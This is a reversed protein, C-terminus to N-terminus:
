RRPQDEKVPTVQEMDVTVSVPVVTADLKVTIKGEARMINEIKGEEGKFNGGTILVPTDHSMRAVPPRPSMIRDVDEESAPTELVKRAFRVNETARLVEAVDNAEVYIYGETEPSVVVSKLSLSRYDNQNNVLEATERERGIATKVAFLKSKSDEEM